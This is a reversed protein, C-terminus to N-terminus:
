RLCRCVWCTVLFLLFSLIKRPAQRNPFTDIKNFFLTLKQSKGGKASNKPSALFFVFKTLLTPYSREETPIIKGNKCAWIFKKMLINVHLLAFDKSNNEFEFGGFYHKREILRFNDGLFHRYVFEIIPEVTKCQFFLHLPTEREDEPNRNISCFTCFPSHGRVFKSVM